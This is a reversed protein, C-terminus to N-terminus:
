SGEAKAVHVVKSSAPEALADCLSQIEAIEQDAKGYQSLNVTGWIVIKVMENYIRRHQVITAIEKREQDSRSASQKQFLSAHIFNRRFVRLYNNGLYRRALKDQEAALPGEAVRTKWSYNFYNRFEKNDWNLQSFVMSKIHRGIQKTIKWDKGFMDFTDRALSVIRQIQPQVKLQAQAKRESFVSDAYNIPDLFNIDSM